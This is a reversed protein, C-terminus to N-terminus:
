HQINRSRRCLLDLKELLMLDKNLCGHVCTMSIGMKQIEEQQNFSNNPDSRLM